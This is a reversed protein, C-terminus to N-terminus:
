RSDTSEEDKFFNKIEAADHEAEHRSVNYFARWIKLALHTRIDTRQFRSAMEDIGADFGDLIAVLVNAIRRENESWTDRDATKSALKDVLRGFLMVAVLRFIRTQEFYDADGPRGSLKRDIERQYATLVQELRTAFGNDVDAVGMRLEFFLTGVERRFNELSQPNANTSLAATTNNSM